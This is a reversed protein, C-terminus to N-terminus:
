LELIEVPGINLNRNLIVIDIMKKQHILLYNESYKFDFFISSILNRLYTTLYLISEVM